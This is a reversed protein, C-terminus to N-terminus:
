RQVVAADEVDVLVVTTLAFDRREVIRGLRAASKVMEARAQREAATIVVWERRFPAPPQEDLYFDPCHRFYYAHEWHNAVVPESPLRHANV